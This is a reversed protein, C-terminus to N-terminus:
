TGDGAKVKGKNAIFDLWVSGGRRNSKAIFLFFDKVKQFSTPMIILFYVCIFTERGHMEEIRNLEAM